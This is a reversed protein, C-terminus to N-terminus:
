RGTAIWDCKRFCIEHIDTKDAVLYRQEEDLGNSSSNASFQQGSTYNWAAYAPTKKTSCFHYLLLCLMSQHTTAGWTLIYADTHTHMDLMRCYLVRKLNRKVAETQTAAIVAASKTWEKNFGMQRSGHSEGSNWDKGWAQFQKLLLVLLKEESTEVILHWSQQM